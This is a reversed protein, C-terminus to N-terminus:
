VRSQVKYEAPERRGDDIDHEGHNQLAGAAGVVRTEVAKRVLGGVVHRPQHDPIVDRLTKGRRGHGERPIVVKVVRLDGEAM